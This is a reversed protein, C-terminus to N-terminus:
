EDQGGEDDEDDVINIIIFNFEIIIITIIIVIIVIIVIFVVVVVVFARVDFSVWRRRIIGEGCRRSREDGFAVSARPRRSAEDSRQSPRVGKTTRVEVM